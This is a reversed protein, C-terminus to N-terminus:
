RWEIIELKMNNTNWTTSSSASGGLYIAVLAYTTATSSTYAKIEELDFECSCHETGQTIAGFNDVVVKNFPDYLFGLKKNTKVAQITNGNVSFYDSENFRSPVPLPELTIAAVTKAGTTTPIGDWSIRIKKVLNYDLDDLIVIHQTQNGSFALNIGWQQPDAYPMTVNGSLNYEYKKGAAWNGSWNNLSLEYDRVLSRQDDSITLVMSVKSKDQPIVFNTGAEKISVSARDGSPTTTTGNSYTWNIGNEVTCKGDKYSVIKVDRVTGRANTESITGDKQKRQIKIGSENVHVAALAHDFNIGSLENSSKGEEWEKATASKTVLLDEGGPNTYDFTAKGYQAGGTGATASFSSVGSGCYAWFYHKIMNRWNYETETHWKSDSGYAVKADKMFHQDAKDDASAALKDKISEDLYGNLVFTKSKLSGEDLIQAKTEPTYIPTVVETVTFSAGCCDAEYEVIESESAAKTIVENIGLKGITLAGGNVGERSIDEKNCASLATVVALAYVAFIKKM